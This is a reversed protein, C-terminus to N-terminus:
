RRERPCSGPENQGGALIKINSGDDPGYPVGRAAYGFLRRRKNTLEARWVRTGTHLDLFHYYFGEYGTAEPSGSQDSDRFFRLVFLSREVADAQTM